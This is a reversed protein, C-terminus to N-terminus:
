KKDNQQFFDEVQRQESPKLPRFGGQDNLFVTRSEQYSIVMDPLHDGNVDVFSVTVPVLDSDPGYLQPGLYLRAHTADGGPIEIIEIRSNLNIAVFHTKHGSQENHGVWADVQYTRPRGYHIDDMLIGFWGLAASLGMWLLLMACMGLGLYLLPHVQLSTMRRIRAWGLANGHQAIFQAAVAPDPTYAKGRPLDHSDIDQGSGNPILDDGRQWEAVEDGTDALSLRLRSARQIAPVTASTVVTRKGVAPTNDLVPRHRVVSRPTIEDSTEVIAM